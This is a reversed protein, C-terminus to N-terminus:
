REWYKSVNVHNKKLKKKKKKKKLLKKSRKWNNSNQCDFSCSVKSLPNFMVYFTRRARSEM